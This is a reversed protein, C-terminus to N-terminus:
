EQAKFNHRAQSIAQSSIEDLKDQSISPKMTRFSSKNGAGLEPTQVIEDPIEERSFIQIETPKRPADKDYTHAWTIDVISGESEIDPSPSAKGISSTLGQLGTNISTNAQTESQEGRSELSKM